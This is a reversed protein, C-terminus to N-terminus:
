SPPQTLNLLATVEGLLNTEVSEKESPSTPLPRLGGAKKVEQSDRRELKKELVRERKSNAAPIITSFQFNVPTGLPPTTATPSEKKPQINCAHQYAKQFRPLTDPMSFLLSELERFTASIKAIQSNEEHGLTYLKDILKEFAQKVESYTPKSQLQVPPIISLGASIAMLDKYCRLAYLQLKQTYRSSPEKLDPLGDIGATSCIDKFNRQYYLLVQKEFLAKANTDRKRTLQEVIKLQEGLTKLADVVQKLSEVTPYNNSLKIKVDGTPIPPNQQPSDSIPLIDLASTGRAPPSTTETVYISSPSSSSSSSSSSPATQKAEEPICKKPDKLFSEAQSITEIVVDISNRMEPYDDETGEINSLLVKITSFCENLDMKLHYDSPLFDQSICFPFLTDFCFNLLGRYAAKIDVTLKKLLLESEVPKDLLSDPESKSLNHIRNGNINRYQDILTGITDRFKNIEEDILKHGSSMLEFKNFILQIQEYLNLLLPPAKKSSGIIERIKEIASSVFAEDSLTKKDESEFATPFLGDQKLGLLFEKLDETISKLIKQLEEDNSLNIKYKDLSLSLSLDHKQAEKIAKSTVAIFKLNKEHEDLNCYLETIEEAGKQILNWLTPTSSMQIQTLFSRAEAQTPYTKPMDLILGSNFCYALFEAYKIKLKYSQPDVHGELAKDFTKQRYEKFAKISSLINELLEQSIETTEKSTETSEKSKKDTNKPESEALKHLIKLLLLVIDHKSAPKTEKNPVGPELFKLKENASKMVDTIKKSIDQTNKKWKFLDSQECYKLFEEFNEKSPLNEIKKSFDLLSGYLTQYNLTDKIDSTVTSVLSASPELNPTSSPTREGSM